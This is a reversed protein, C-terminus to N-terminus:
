RYSPNGDDTYVDDSVYLGGDPGQALGTPRYQITGTSNKLGDGSFNDAFIEWDGSPKGDKFPVFAVFYGENLAPSKGHFAIFAGNKYKEPFANGTYFLM